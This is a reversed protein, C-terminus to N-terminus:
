EALTSAVRELVVERNLPKVIYNRAGSLLCQKVLDQKGIAAIMIVRANKDFEIIKRLASIGDMVPMTLDMIVLDIGPYLEVYKRLGEEGNEAIATVDFSESTLIQEMQHAVFRSDDVILVRYSGGNRNIGDPKRDQAAVPLSCFLTAAALLSITRTTMRM